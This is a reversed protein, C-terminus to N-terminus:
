SLTEQARIYHNAEEAYSIATPYHYEKCYDGTVNPPTGGQTFSLYFENGLEIYKVPLGLETARALMRRANALTDTLMNLMYIPTAGTAAIGNQLEELRYTNLIKNGSPGNLPKRPAKREPDRLDKAMYQGTSWDLYNGITGGPYRLNGPALDTLLKMFAPDSWSPGEATQTNFGYLEPTIERVITSQTFTIASSTHEPEPSGAADSSKGEGCSITLVILFLASFHRKHGM